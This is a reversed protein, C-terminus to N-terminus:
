NRSLYAGYFQNIQVKNLTKQLLIFAKHSSCILNKISCYEPCIPSSQSNKTENESSPLIHGYEKKKNTPSIAIYLFHFGIFPLFFLYDIMSSAASSLKVCHTSWHSWFRVPTFTAWSVVGCICVTCMSGTICLSFHRRFFVCLVFIGILIFSCILFQNLQSFRTFSNALVVGSLASFSSLLTLPFRSYIKPIVFMIFWECYFWSQSSLYLQILQITLKLYDNKKWVSSFSDLSRVVKKKLNMANRLHIALQRIYIFAHQYSVQTDLSYMESLTRQMFSIMPLTNPSTFKCNKVYAIYM